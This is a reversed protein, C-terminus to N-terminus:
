IWTITITFLPFKHSYWIMPKLSIMGLCGNVEPLEVGIGKLYGKIQGLFNWPVCISELNKTCFETIHQDLWLLVKTYLHPTLISSWKPTSFSPVTVHNTGYHLNVTIEERGTRKMTETLIAQASGFRSALVSPWSLFTAPTADLITVEVIRLPFM